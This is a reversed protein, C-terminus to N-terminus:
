GSEASGFADQLRRQLAAARRSSRRQNALVRRSVALLWPLPEGPVHDLRRWAVLFVEAVVEDATTADSRRWAYSHVRDAYDRYMREFRERDGM